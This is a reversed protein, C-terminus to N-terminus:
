AQIHTARPKLRGSPYMLHLVQWLQLAKFEWFSGRRWVFYTADAM